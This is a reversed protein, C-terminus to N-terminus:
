RGSAELYRERHYTADGLTMAIVTLRKFYHSVDLEDTMGIGGHLQVAEQGVSRAADAVRARAASVHRRRSVPDEDFAHLAALLAMSRAQEVEVAMNAVRHQLAQFRALPQGFQQRTAHYALTRELLVAMAGTAEACLAAGARDFLRERLVAAGGPAALRASGPVKVGSLTVDAAAFGDPTVSGRLTLGASARPVLFFAYEKGGELTASVILSDATGAHLVVAKAGDLVYDSGAAKARTTVTDYADGMDAEEHAFAVLRRGEAIEAALAQQEPTGGWELATAALVIASQFPEVVLARGFEEGVILTALSAARADGVLEPLVAATVGLDVLQSWIKPSYGEPSARLKERKAFDYESSLFRRVAERLLAEDSGLEIDM